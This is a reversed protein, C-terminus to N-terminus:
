CNQLGYIICFDKSRDYNIKFSFNHHLKEFSWSYHENDALGESLIHHMIFSIHLSYVTIPFSDKCFCNLQQTSPNKLTKLMYMQPICQLKHFM